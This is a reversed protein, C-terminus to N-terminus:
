LLCYGVFSINHGYVPDQDLPLPTVLPLISPSLWRKLVCPGRRPDHVVLQDQSRDYGEFAQSPRQPSSPKYLQLMEVDWM